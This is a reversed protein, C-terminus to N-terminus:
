CSAMPRSRPAPTARASWWSAPGPGANRPTPPYRDFRKIKGDALEFVDCCPADTRKGTPPQALAACDDGPLTLM